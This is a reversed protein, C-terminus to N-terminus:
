KISSWCGCENCVYKYDTITRSYPIKHTYKDCNACYTWITRLGMFINHFYGNIVLNEKTLVLIEKVM